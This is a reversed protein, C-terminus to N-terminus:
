NHSVFSKSPSIDVVDSRVTSRCLLIYLFWVFCFVRFLLVRDFKHCINLAHSHFQLALVFRLQLAYLTQTVNKTTKKPSAIQITQDIRNSAPFRFDVLVPYNIQKNWCRMGDVLMWGDSSDTDSELESEASHAFRVFVHWGLLREFWRSYRVAVLKIIDPERM